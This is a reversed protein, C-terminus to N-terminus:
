SLMKGKAPHDEGKEHAARRARQSTRQTRDGCASSQRVRLYNLRFDTGLSLDRCGLAHLLAAMLRANRRAGRQLLRRCAAQPVHSRGGRESAPGDCNEWNVPLALTNSPSLTSIPVAEGTLPPATHEVSGLYPAMTCLRISSVRNHPSAPTLSDAKVRAEDSASDGRQRDALMAATQPDCYM